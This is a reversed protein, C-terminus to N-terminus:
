LAEEAEEEAAGAAEYPVLKTIVLKKISPAAGFKSSMKHRYSSVLAWCETGNGIKKPDIENGETDVPKFAHISKGVVYKGQDTDKSKVKIGLGELADAAKDSLSGLTCEYKKNDENFHTNFESMFSSWFLKGAVKVPKLDSM